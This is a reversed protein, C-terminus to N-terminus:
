HVAKREAKKEQELQNFLRVIDLDKLEYLQTNGWKYIGNEILIGIMQQRKTEKVKLENM